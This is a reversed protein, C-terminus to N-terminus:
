VKACLMLLTLGVALALYTALVVSDGQSPAGHGMAARLQSSWSCTSSGTASWSRSRSCRRRSSRASFAEAGPIFGYQMAYVSLALGMSLFTKAQTEHNTLKTIMFWM